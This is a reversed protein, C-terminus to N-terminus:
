KNLDKLVKALESIGEVNGNYEIKSIKNTKSNKTIIKFKV